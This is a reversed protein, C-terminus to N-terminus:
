KALAMSYGIKADSPLLLLGLHVSLQSVFYVISLSRDIVYFYFIDDNSHESM